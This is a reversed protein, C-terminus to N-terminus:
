KILLVKQTEVLNGNQLRVFYVGSPLSGANWVIEHEGTVLKGSMLTEVLRGTIDFIQLSTKSNPAVSFRIATTPNFPNPFPRYLKFIKPILNEDDIGVFEGYTIGNIEAAILDFYNWTTAGDNETFRIPGIGDFLTYNTGGLLMNDQNYYHTERDIGFYTLTDIGILYQSYNFCSDSTITDGMELNPALWVCGFEDYLEGTLTDQKVVFTAAYNSGPKINFEFYLEGNEIYEDIIMFEHITTDYDIRYSLYQWRNGVQLPFYDADETLYDCPSQYEYAFYETGETDEIIFEVLGFYESEGNNDLDQGYIEATWTGASLGGITLALDFECYCFAMDGTDVEAVQIINSDIFSISFYFLAGCNRETNEHHITATDGTVETWLVDSQGFAFNFLLIFIFQKKM